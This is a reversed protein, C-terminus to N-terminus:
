EREWSHFGEPDMIPAVRRGAGCSEPRTERVVRAHDEDDDPLPNMSEQLSCAVGNADNFSSIRFGRSTRRM